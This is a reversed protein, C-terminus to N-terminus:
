TAISDITRFHDIIFSSAIILMDLLDLMSIEWYSEVLPFMTRTAPDLSSNLRRNSSCPVKPLQSLAHEYVTAPLFYNLPYM